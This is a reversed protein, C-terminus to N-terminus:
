RNIKPIDSLAVAGYDSKGGPLQYNDVDPRFSTRQNVVQVIVGLCDLCDDQSMVVCVMSPCQWGEDLNMSVPYMIEEHKSIPRHPVDPKLLEKSSRKLALDLTM